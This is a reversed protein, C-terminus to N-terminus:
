NKLPHTNGSLRNVYIDHKTYGQQVYSLTFYQMNTDDKLSIKDEYKTKTKM